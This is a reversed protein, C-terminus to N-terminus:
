INEFTQSFCNRDETYTKPMLSYPLVEAAFDDTRRFGYVPFWDLNLVVTFRDEFADLTIEARASIMREDDLAFRERFTELDRGLRPITEDHRHPVPRQRDLSNLKM